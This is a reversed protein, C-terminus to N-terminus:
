LHRSLNLSAQKGEEIEGQALNRVEKKLSNRRIVNEELLNKGLTYIIEQNSPRVKKFNFFKSVTNRTLGSQDVIIQIFNSYRESLAKKLLEVDHHTFM